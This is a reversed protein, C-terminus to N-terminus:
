IVNRAAIAGSVGHEIVALYALHMVREDLIAAEGAVAVTDFPAHDPDVAVSGVIRGAASGAQDSRGSRFVRNPDSSAGSYRGDSNQEQFTGIAQQARRACDLQPAGGHKMGSQMRKGTEHDGHGEPLGSRAKNAPPALRGPCAASRARRIRSRHAIATTTARTRRPPPRATAPGSGSGTRRVARKGEHHM